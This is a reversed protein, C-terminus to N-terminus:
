NNTMNQNWSWLKGNRNKLHDCNAILEKKEDSTLQFMFDNPFLDRNPKVQEYGGAVFDSCKFLRGQLPHYFAFWNNIENFVLLFMM